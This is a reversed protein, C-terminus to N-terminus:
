VETQLILAQFASRKGKYTLHYKQPEAGIHAIDKDFVDGYIKPLSVEVITGSEELFVAVVRLGYRTEV